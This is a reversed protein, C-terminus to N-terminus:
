RLLSSVMSVSNDIIIYESATEKFKPYEVTLQSYGVAEVDETDKEYIKMCSKGAKGKADM